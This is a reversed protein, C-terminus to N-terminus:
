ESVMARQAANMFLGTAGPADAGPLTIPGSPAAPAPAPVPAAVPAPAPAAVPAPSPAAVPAPAAVPTAAISIAAVAPALADVAAPAAAPAAAAPAAAPAPAAAAVPASAAATTGGTAANISRELKAAALASRRMGDLSGVKEHLKEMRRLVTLLGQLMPLSDPATLKSQLSVVRSCTEIAQRILGKSEFASSMHVLASMQAKLAGDNDPTKNLQVQAVGYVLQWARIIADAGARAKELATADAFAAELTVPAADKAPQQASAAAHSHAELDREAARQEAEEVAVIGNDSLQRVLTNRKTISKVSNAHHRQAAAIKREPPRLGVREEGDDGDAAGAFVEGSPLQGKKLAFRAMFKEDEDLSM